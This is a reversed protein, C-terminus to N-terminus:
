QKKKGTDVIQKEFIFSSKVNSYNKNTPLSRGPYGQQIWKRIIDAMIRWMLSMDWDNPQVKEFKLRILITFDKFISNWKLM